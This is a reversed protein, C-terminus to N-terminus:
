VQEHGFPNEVIAKNWGAIAEALRTEATESFESANPDFMKFSWVDGIPPKGLAQEFIANRNTAAAPMGYLTAYQTMAKRLDDLTPKDDVKNAASEAAEDAADQAAEAKQLEIAQQVPEDTSAPGKEGPAPAPDAKPKRAGRKIPESVPAPAKEETKPEASTDIKPIIASRTAGSSDSYTLEDVDVGLARLDEALEKMSSANITIQVTM